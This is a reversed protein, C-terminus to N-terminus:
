SMMPKWPGAHFPVAQTTALGGTEPEGFDQECRVRDDFHPTSVEFFVCKTIARVRHVTGPAFRVSEGPWMKVTTLVGSDTPDHDYEATGSYLHATEDKFRHKQLGGAGGANMTLVKGIYGPTQAILLEEGWTREGLNRPVFREAM